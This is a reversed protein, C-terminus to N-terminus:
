LAEDTMGELAARIVAKQRETLDGVMKSHALDLRNLLKMTRRPGWRHQASLLRIVTMRQAREDWLAEVATTEGDMVEHRIAAIGFRVENAKDLARMSQDVTATASM